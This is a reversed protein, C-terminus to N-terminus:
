EEEEELIEKEALFDHKAGRHFVKKLQKVPIKGNKLRRCAPCEEIIKEENKRKRSM